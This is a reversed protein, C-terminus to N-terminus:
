LLLIKVKTRSSRLEQVDAPRRARTIAQTDLEKLISELYM